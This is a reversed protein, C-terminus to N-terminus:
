NIKINNGAVAKGSIHKAKINNGASVDGNIDNATVNNGADVYSGVNGHVVVNNDSKVINVDGHVEVTINCGTTLAIGSFVIEGNVTVENNRIFVNAGDPIIHTKGNVTIQNSM